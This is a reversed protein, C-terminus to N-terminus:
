LVSVTARVQLRSYPVAAKCHMGGLGEWVRGVVREIQGQKGNRLMFGLVDSCLVVIMSDSPNEQATAVGSLCASEAHQIAEDSCGMFITALAVYLRYYLSAGTHTSSGIM